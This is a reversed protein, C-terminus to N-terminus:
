QWSGDGRLRDAAHGAHPDTAPAEGVTLTATMGPIRTGPHRLDVSVAGAAMDGLNLTASEGPNLDPTSPGAWSQSTTPSIARRQQCATDRRGEPVALDGSISFETLQIEAETSDVGAGSASPGRVVLVLIAAMVLVGTAAVLLTNCPRVGQILREDSIRENLVEELQCTRGGAPLASLGPPHTQEARGPTPPNLSM